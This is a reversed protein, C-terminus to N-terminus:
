IGMEAEKRQRDYEDFLFQCEVVKWVPYEEAEIIGRIRTILENESMM